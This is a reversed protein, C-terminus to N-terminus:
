LPPPRSSSSAGLLKVVGERERERERERRGSERRAVVVLQATGAQAAAESVCM